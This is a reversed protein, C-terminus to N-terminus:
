IEKEVATHAIKKFFEETHLLVKQVDKNSLGTKKQLYIELIEKDFGLKQLKEFALRVQLLREGLRDIDTMEEIKKTM